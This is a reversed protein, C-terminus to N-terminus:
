ELYLIHIFILITLDWFPWFVRVDLVSSIIWSLKTHKAVLAPSLKRHSPLPEYIHQCPDHQIKLFADTSIIFVYLILQSRTMQLRLMFYLCKQHCTFVSMPFDFRWSYNQWKKFLVSYKIKSTLNVFWKVEVM